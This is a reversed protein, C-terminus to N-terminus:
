KKNRFYGDPFMEELMAKLRIFIEQNGCLVNGTELYDNEGEIDTIVGGAEEVLLAGAAIDWASLGFEWFGDARGCAVHSLDLAASGARRIGSTAPLLKRFVTIFDDMMDAAKFPFGTLILSRDLTKVDSVQLREGNLHAGYGRAASFIEDRTPDNVVGAVIQGKREVAVSVCYSQYGHIFNTTGDLPDIIWRFESKQQHYGSEEALISHDPHNARIIRIVAEESAKDVRTVFDHIGKENIDAASLTNAEEKLIAAGAEAAKFATKLLEQYM